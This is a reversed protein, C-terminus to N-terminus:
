KSIKYNSIISKSNNISKFCIHIYFIIITPYTNLSLLPCDFLLLFVVVIVNSLPASFIFRSFLFVFPLSTSTVFLFARISQFTFILISFFSTPLLTSHLIFILFKIYFSITLNVFFIIPLFYWIFELKFKHFNFNLKLGEFHLKLRLQSKPDSLNILDIFLVIVLPYFPNIPFFCHQNLLAFFLITIIIFCLLPIISNFWSKNPCFM